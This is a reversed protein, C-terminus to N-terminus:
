ELEQDQDRNKAWEDDKHPFYWYQIIWGIIAIILGMIWDIINSQFAGGTGLVILLISIFRVIYDYWIHKWLGQM